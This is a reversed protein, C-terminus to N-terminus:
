KTSAPLKNEKLLDGFTKGEISSKDGEVKTLMELIKKKDKENKRLQKALAKGYINRNKKSNGDHCANCTIKGDDQAKVVDPYKKEFGKKYQTRAAAQDFNGVVLATVCGVFLVCRSGFRNM